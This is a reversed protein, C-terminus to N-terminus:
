AAQRKAMERDFWDLLAQTEFDGDEPVPNAFAIEQAARGEEMLEDWLGQHDGMTEPTCVDFCGFSGRGKEQRFDGIGVIVGANNLLSLVGHANLTPSIFAVDVEACWRPLFARTRVDPTKAMDASRVTDMKLKPVGWVRIMSEPLFILRQVSSKTVGATELAATAMAAKVGPAPFGLLTEGTAHRYTSDRFEDYVQHKINNKKEAATMKTGGLVLTRLTKASMANMYLGTSGVLRVKIRNQKLSEIVLEGAEAKKLAM